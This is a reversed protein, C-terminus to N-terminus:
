RRRTSNAITPLRMKRFPTQKRARKKSYRKSSSQKPNHLTSSARENNREHIFLNNASQMSLIIQDISRTNAIPAKFLINRQMNQISNLYGDALNVLFNVEKILLYNITNKYKRFLWIISYKCNFM